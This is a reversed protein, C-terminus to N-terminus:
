ESTTNDIANTARQDQAERPLEAPCDLGIYPRVLAICAFRVTSFAFASFQSSASWIGPHTTGSSYARKPIASPNGLALPRDIIVGEKWIPSFSPRASGDSKCTPASTIPFLGLVPM